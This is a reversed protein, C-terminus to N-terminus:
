SSGNHGNLSHGNAMLPTDPGQPTEEQEDVGLVAKGMEKILDLQSVGRKEAEQMIWYHITQESMNPATDEPQRPTRGIEDIQYKGLGYGRVAILFLHINYQETESGTFMVAPTKEPKDTVAFAEVEGDMVKITRTGDALSMALAIAEGLNKMLVSSQGCVVQYRPHNVSPKNIDYGIALSATLRDTATPEPQEDATLKPQEIKEPLATIGAQKLLQPLNAQATLRISQQIDDGNYAATIQSIVNQRANLQMNALAKKGELEAALAAMHATFEAEKHEAMKAAEKRRQLQIPALEHTLLAGLAMFAPAVPLGWRLYLALMPSLEGAGSHTQSDTVIGLTALIFGLGYTIVATISQATGTIKNNHWALYLGFLVGEIIVIGVIQAIQALPNDAAFKISAMIGHVGSYILFAVKAIHLLWYGASGATKSLNSPQNEDGAFFDHQFNSSM